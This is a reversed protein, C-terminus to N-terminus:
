AGRKFRTFGLQELWHPLTQGTLLEAPSKGRREAKRSRPFRRHNLYFRLLELYDNGLHRRLFFYSRLRSNLNEVLSSARVISNAMHDLADQVEPYASGLRTWFTADRQWYLPDTQSLTRQEFIQRIQPLGIEFRSALEALREDIEFAFAFLHTKENELFRRVKRIRPSAQAELRKFEALLFEALELRIPAEPGVLEFLECFWSALVRLEDALSIAQDARKRAQALRSSLSRGKQHKKAREMQGELQYQVRLVRYARHELYSVLQSLEREAHFVDGWIPTQPWAQTQGSRLGSGADTITHDVQLGKAELDLLHVGWTTGDRSEEQALLYCYTSHADVGVLVPDGQFIEDHLGVRISSLDETEHITHAQSVAQHVITHAQGVSVNWDFVDGFFQHVGQLSSHCGLVLALVIQEIRTRTVEFEFLVEDEGTRKPQFAQNLAEQAQDVQRYIFPRSVEWDRAVESIPEGGALVELALEQREEGSLSKARSGSFNQFEFAPPTMITM